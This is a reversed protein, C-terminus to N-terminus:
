KRPLEPLPHELAQGCPSKTDKPITRYDVTDPDPGSWGWPLWENIRDVAENAPVGSYAMAIGVTGYAALRATWTVMTAPLALLDAVAEISTLTTRDEQEDECLNELWVAGRAVTQYPALHSTPHLLPIAQEAGSAACGICLLLLLGVALRPSFRPESHHM